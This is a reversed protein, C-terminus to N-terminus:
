PWFPEDDDSYFIEGNEDIFEFPIDTVYYRCKSFTGLQTRDQGKIYLYGNEKLHEVATNITGKSVGLRKALGVQTYDWTKEENSKLEIQLLRAIPSLKTDRRVKDDSKTFTESNDNSKYVKEHKTYM